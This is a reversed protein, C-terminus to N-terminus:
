NDSGAEKVTGQATLIMDSTMIGIRQILLGFLDLPFIKKRFAIGKGYRPINGVARNRM